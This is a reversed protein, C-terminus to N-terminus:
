IFLKTTYNVWEPDKADESDASLMVFDREDEIARQEHVIDALIHDPNEEFLARLKREEICDEDDEELVLIPLSSSRHIVM